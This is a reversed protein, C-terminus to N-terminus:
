PVWISKKSKIKHDVFLTSPTKKKSEVKEKKYGFFYIQLKLKFTMFNHCLLKSIKEIKKWDQLLWVCM